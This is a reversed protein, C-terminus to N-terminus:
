FAGANFLVVWWIWFGQILSSAADIGEAARLKADPPDLGTIHDLMMASIWKEKNFTVQSLMNFGGWLKERFFPRYEPATSWSELGQSWSSPNLRKTSLDFIESTCHIYNRTNSGRPIWCKPRASEYGGWSSIRPWWQPIEMDRSHQLRSARPSQYRLWECSDPYSSPSRSLRQTWRFLIWPTHGSLIFMLLIFELILHLM